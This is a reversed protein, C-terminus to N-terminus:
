KNILKWLHNSSNQIIQELDMIPNVVWFVLSGEVCTMIHIAMDGPVIDERILGELKGQYLINELTLRINNSFNLYGEALLQYKKIGETLILFYERIDIGNAKLNQQFNIITSFFMELKELANGPNDEIKDLRERIHSFFYKSLVELVLEDKNKFYYYFGGKTIGVRSLIDNLSVDTFGKEMFLKFSTDIIVDRLDM